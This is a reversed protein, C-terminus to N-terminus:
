RRWAGIALLVWGAIMALGGAPTIAGLWRHGSLVLAYLSGSFILTGAALLWGALRLPTNSWHAVAWAAGLLALAHVLQYRAGTEFIALSEPPVRGRLTHAGFAGIAVGSGGLLAGIIFFVRDM